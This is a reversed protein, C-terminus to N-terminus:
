DFKAKRSMNLFIRSYLIERFDTWHCGLREVCVSMLTSPCIAMIFYSDSKAIKGNNRFHAEHFDTCPYARCSAFMFVVEYTVVKQGSYGVFIFMIVSAASNFGFDLLLGREIQKYGSSPWESGVQFVTGAFRLFWFWVCCICYQTGCVSCKPSM